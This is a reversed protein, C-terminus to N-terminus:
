PRSPPANVDRLTPTDPPVAVDAASAIDEADYRDFVSKVRDVQDEGACHASVLVRGGIVRREYRKADLDPVGLSVLAGRVGLGSLAAMLPGGAVFSGHGPIAVADIGSLLALTGGVAAGAGKANSEGEDSFVVSIVRYPIGELRLQEVIHEARRREDTTCYVARTM